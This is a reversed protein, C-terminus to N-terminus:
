AHHKTSCVDGYEFEARRDPKYLSIKQTRTTISKLNTPKALPYLEGYSVTCIQKAAIGQKLLYSKVGDARRQGLHLNYEQSGIPDTYGSILIHTKPNKLLYDSVAHMETIQQKDSIRYKDFGFGVITPLKHHNQATQSGYMSQGDFLSSGAVAHSEASTQRPTAQDGFGFYSALGGGGQSACGSLASIAIAIMLPKSYKM